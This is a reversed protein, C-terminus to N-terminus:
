ENGLEFVPQRNTANANQFVLKAQLYVDQKVIPLNAAEGLLFPNKYLFKNVYIERATNEAMDKIFRQDAPNFEGNFIIEQCFLGYNIAVQAAIMNALNQSEPEAPDFVDEEYSYILETTFEQGDRYVKYPATFGKKKLEVPGIELRKIVLQKFTIDDNNIQM